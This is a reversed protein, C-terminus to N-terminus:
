NTLFTYRLRNVGIGLSRTDESNKKLDKLKHVQTEITITRENCGEVAIMITEGPSLNVEKRQGCSVAVKKEVPLFNTLEVELLYSESCDFLINPVTARPACTWRHTIEGDGWVRGDFVFGATNSGMALELSNGEILDEYPKAIFTNARGCSPLGEFDILYGANNLMTTFFEQTFGLEMWGYNRICIASLGDLRPGWAYPVSGTPEGVVPEGCFILSGGKELREKLTGVLEIFEFAHHFAEFFVIRDFKSGEFGKGFTNRDTQVDLNMIRAQESIVNLSPQDIDVAFAKCGMRAVSLIFQGSGSGYELVTTNAPDQIDLAKFMQGWSFMMESMMQSSKFSWPTVDTFINPVEGLGSKEDRAPDYDLTDKGRIVFYLKLAADKYEKSFPDLDKLKDAEPCELIEKGIREYEKADIGGKLHENQQFFEDLSTM